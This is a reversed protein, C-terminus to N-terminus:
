EGKQLKCIQANIAKSRLIFSVTFIEVVATLAYVTLRVFFLTGFGIDYQALYFSALGITKLTVSGIFHGLFVAIMLKALTYKLPIKHYLIGSVLGVLAGGLMVMPNITYGVLLCGLLDAVVAVLAGGLPGIAVVTFFIPLNELSIRIIETNFIPLYKGLVISMAIMLSMFVLKKTTFLSKIGRNQLTTEKKQM